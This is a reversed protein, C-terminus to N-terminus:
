SIISLLNEAIKEIDYKEKVDRINNESMKLMLKKNMMLSEINEALKEPNGIPTIIGNEGDIIVEPMAGVPTIIVPLGMAMAELSVMSFGETYSPLIFVDSTNLIEIKKRNDVVGYYLANYKRCSSLFDQTKISLDEIHELYYNRWKSGLFEATTVNYEFLEGAIILKINNKYKDHLIKYAIILDNFGKSFTLHSLFLLTFCDNKKVTQKINGWKNLDLGNHLYKINGCYISEFDASISSGYLVLTDIKSLVQRIVIKYFYGQTQYFNNFNAGHYQAICKRNLYYCTLIYVMDRLFGIKSSSLYLFVTKSRYLYFIFKYYIKIFRIIGEADFKGKDKNYKRVNSNIVIVDNRNKIIDSEIIEKAINEPGAFPPPYPLLFLFNM